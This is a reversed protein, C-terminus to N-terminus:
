TTRIWSAAPAFRDRIDTTAEVESAAGRFDSFPARHAPLPYKM